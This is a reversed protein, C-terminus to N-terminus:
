RAAAGETLTDTLADAALPGAALGSAAPGAGAAGVPVTAGGLELSRSAAHLLRLVRVGARGDTLPARGETVAAAFEAMVNRLAEQEVLAPAVMEGVRYSILAQHRIADTLEDPPTLDVGRDYVSLRAQPNLDDWVLTRRSGGIMTTRVKTPSLWNVHCHALAGSSLHVTLYAVCARGAGIPDAGQASVGVPEVGPPLVFDLISLDHPALDWLVDVDPQVLGLNIRVSDFFQVEGLDGRHVMERIRRVVPTYCFTHDCMLVRGHREAVAVLEEAEDADTTIPKEVLVHRGAELAARVLRYHSAAPTAVAVAQVRDDALVEEFSTTTRVTSYGGLVRRARSEDLDCLWRLRLGPTQQANRVLNPGWYGAGVVAIGVPGGEPVAPPGPAPVHEGPAEHAEEPGTAGSTRQSHTM